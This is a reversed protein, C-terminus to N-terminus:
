QTLMIQIFRKNVWGTVRTEIRCWGQQEELVKVQEGQLLPEDVLDFRVGPGVRINLAESLVIAYETTELGQEIEEAVQQSETEVIEEHKEIELLYARLADLPFAPGPDQKRGASIEEHGLVTTISYKEVLLQCVKECASIQEKTYTHWYRPDQENRHTALLTEEEPYSKKFWSVYCDGQKKLNGANDMEIGISYKNLGKRVGHASVGAHWTITDFPVLQYITGDRAIV